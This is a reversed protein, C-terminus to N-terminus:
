IKTASKTLNFDYTICSVLEFFFNQFKIFHENAIRYTETDRLNEFKDCQKHYNGLAYEDFQDSNLLWEFLLKEDNYFTIMMHEKVFVSTSLYMTYRNTGNMIKIANSSIYTAVFNNVVFTESLFDVLKEFTNM